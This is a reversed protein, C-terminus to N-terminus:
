VVKDAADEFVLDKQYEANGESAKFLWPRESAASWVEEGFRHLLQAIEEQLPAYNYDAAVDILATTKAPLAKAADTVADALQKVNSYQFLTKGPGSNRQRLGLGRLVTSIKLCAPSSNFRQWFARDHTPLAAAVTLGSSPTLQQPAGSGFPLPLAVVLTKGPTMEVTRLGAPATACISPQTM